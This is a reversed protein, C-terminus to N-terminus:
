HRFVRLNLEAALGEIYAFAPGETDSNAFFVNNEFLTGRLRPLGQVTFSFCNGADALRQNERIMEETWGIRKGITIMEAFDKPTLVADATLRRKVAEYPFPADDTIPILRTASM